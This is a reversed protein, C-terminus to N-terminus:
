PIECQSCKYKAQQDNCVGCLKSSLSKKPPGQDETITAQPTEAVEETHSHEVETEPIDLVQPSQSKDPIDLVEGNGDLDATTPEM